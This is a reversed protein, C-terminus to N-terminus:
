LSFNKVFEAYFAAAKALHNIPIYENAAHALVENGPGFGITPIQFLGMIGVGNTSFTWKDIKPSEGFLNSYSHGAVELLKHNEDLVWTPFYSQM